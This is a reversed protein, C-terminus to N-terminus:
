RIVFKKTGILGVADRINLTYRGQALDAVSFRIISGFDNYKKQLLIHGAADLVSVDLGEKVQGYLRINLTNDAFFISAAARTEGEVTTVVSISYKSDGDRQRIRYYLSVTKANKDIYEYSNNEIGTGALAVAITMWDKGDFSRQIEYYDDKGEKETTWSIIVAHDPMRTATLGAIDTPTKSGPQSHGDV